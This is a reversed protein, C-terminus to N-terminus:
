AVRDSKAADIEAMRAGTPPMKITAESGAM